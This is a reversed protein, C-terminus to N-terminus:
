TDARARVQRRRPLMDRFRLLAHHLGAWGCVVGTWIHLKFLLHSLQKDMPLFLAFGILVCATFSLLLLWNWGLKIRRASIGYRRALEAALTLVAMMGLFEFVNYKIYFNPRVAGAALAPVAQMVLFLLIAYKM